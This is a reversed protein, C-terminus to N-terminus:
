RTVRNASKSADSSVNVTFGFSTTGFFYHIEVFGISQRFSPSFEVSRCFIFKGFINLALIVPVM